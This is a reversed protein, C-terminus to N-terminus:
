SLKLFYYVVSHYNISALVCVYACVHAYMPVCVRVRVCVAGGAAKGREALSWRFKQCGPHVRNGHSTLTQYEARYTNKGGGM